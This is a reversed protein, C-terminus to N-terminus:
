NRDPIHTYWCDLTDGLYLFIYTLIICLILGLFFIIAHIIIVIAYLVYVITCIVPFTWNSSREDGCDCNLGSLVLIENHLTANKGVVGTLAEQMDQYHKQNQEVMSHITSKSLFKLLLVSVIYMEKLQNMTLTPTYKSPFGVDRNFFGGKNLQYTLIIRQIEKNNALDIVTQLLLGKQNIREKFQNQQSTQVTQYGVVTSLSGLVFLVVTCISLATLSRKDL